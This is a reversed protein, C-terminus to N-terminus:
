SFEKLTDAVAIIGILDDDAAVLMATKGENELKELERYAKSTDINKDQM